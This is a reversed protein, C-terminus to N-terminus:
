RIVLMSTMREINPNNQLTPFTKSDVWCLLRYEFRRIIIRYCLVEVVFNLGVSVTTIWNVDNFYMCLFFDRSNIWNLIFCVFVLCRQISLMEEQCCDEFPPKNSKGVYFFWFSSPSDHGRMSTGENVNFPPCHCNKSGSWKWVDRFNVDNTHYYIWIMPMANVIPGRDVFTSCFEHRWRMILPSAKKQTHTHTAVNDCSAWGNCRVCLEWIQPRVDIKEWMCLSHLLTTVVQVV